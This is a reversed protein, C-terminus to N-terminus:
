AAARWQFGRTTVEVGRQDAWSKFPQGRLVKGLGDESKFGLSARVASKSVYAVKPDALAEEVAEIVRLASKPVRQRQPTWATVQVGPFTDQLLGAGNPGLRGVLYVQCDGCTGAAGQRVSARCIAQLLNHQAEGAKIADITEKDTVESPQGGAAIHLAAYAPLPYTWTGIVMVKSINRHDNTGHHNGWNIWSLRSSNRCLASLDKVISPAPSARDKAHIILWQEDEGNANIVEAAAELVEQRVGPDSLASRSAAREWHHLRLRSYDMTASPLRHLIGNAEMTKYAERVRGSADLILAPAFDEPLGMAGGALCLGSSGSNVVIASTGALSRLPSWQDARDAGYHGSIASYAEHATSPVEIVWGVTEASLSDSISELSEVLAPAKPRLDAFSNVITDKRITVPSAPLFAEDWVRLSRPKGRYHLGAVDVFALGDCMRRLKEQTTFLVPADNRDQLGLTNRDDGKQVLIAFDSPTM